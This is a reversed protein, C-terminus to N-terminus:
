STRHLSTCTADCVTHGSPAPHTFTCSSPCMSPNGCLLTAPVNIPGSTSASASPTFGLPSRTAM